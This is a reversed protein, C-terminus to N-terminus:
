SEDKFGIQEGFIRCIECFAQDQTYHPWNIIEEVDLVFAELKKLREHTKILGDASKFYYLNETM